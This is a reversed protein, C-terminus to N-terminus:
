AAVEASEQNKAARVARAALCQASIEGLDCSVTRALRLLNKQAKGSLRMFSGFDDECVLDLLARLEGQKNMIAVLDGNKMTTTSLVNM